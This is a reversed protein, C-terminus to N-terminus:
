RSRRLPRLRNRLTARLRGSWHRALEIMGPLRWPNVLVLGVRQRRERAWDRKYPDDGRGFDIERVKESDLLLRLMMATLVTGPSYRKFAEDHALKLVTARETAVVWFQAAVPQGSISWLGLRLTGAAATARMLAANFAPFPEPEKWSRAYVAEFAAIGEALDPPAHVVAFRADPVQQARRLRRRITERLAGPRTALYGSWGAAGIAEHWNGFHEFRLAVLGAARTGAVLLDLFPWEEPLADLRTTAWKRCVTGFTRFVVQREAASLWDALLPVYLCSYPTTLSDLRSSGAMRRMPFLGAPRSGLRCLMFCAASAAPMAAAQVTEWWVRSAFLSAEGQQWLEAADAPLAEVAPVM